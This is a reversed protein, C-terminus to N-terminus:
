PVGQLIFATVIRTLYLGSQACLHVEQEYFALPLLNFFGTVTFDFLSSSSSANVIRHLFPLTAQVLEKNSSTLLLGISEAFGSCSGDPIPVLKFLLPEFKYKM